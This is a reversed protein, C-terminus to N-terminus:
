TLQRVSYTVGADTGFEIIGNVESSEIRKGQATAVVAKKPAWPNRVRLRAGKESHVSVQSVARGDWSASVLFAGAARLDRFRVPGLNETNPFLRIVGSYSQLMCENLVAPLSLNETWVGMQMMFSFNTRDSYRGDIQRARDNAVGLKTMSYRVERKFWELDLMGLRARALPQWVLDNGGELRITRATRRALELVDPRSELGAQEAPFVPSLTVPVNYVWEAPADVVDLWVNGHPGEVVPYPALNQRVERWKPM